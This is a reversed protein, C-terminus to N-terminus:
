WKIKRWVHIVCFFVMGLLMSGLIAAAGEMCYKRFDTPDAANARRKGDMGPPVIRYTLTDQVSSTIECSTQCPWPWNRRVKDAVRLWHSDQPQLTEKTEASSLCSGFGNCM